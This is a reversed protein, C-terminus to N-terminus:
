RFLSCASIELAQCFDIYAGIMLIILISRGGVFRVLIAIDVARVQVYKSLTEYVQMWM